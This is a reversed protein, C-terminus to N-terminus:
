AVKAFEELNKVVHERDHPSFSPETDSYFWVGPEWAVQWRWLRPRDHPATEIQEEPGYTRVGTPGSGERDITM